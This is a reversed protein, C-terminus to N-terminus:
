FLFYYHTYDSPFFITIISTKELTIISTSGGEKFVFFFYTRPGIHTPTALKCESLFV